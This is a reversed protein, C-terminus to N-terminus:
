QNITWIDDKAFDDSRDIGIPNDQENVLNVDTKGFVGDDGPYHINWAFQQGIVRIQVRDFLGDKASGTVGRVVRALFWRNNDGYYNM